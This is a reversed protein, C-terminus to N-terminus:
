ESPQNYKYDKDRTKFETVESWEQWGNENRAKVRIKYQKNFYLVIKLENKTLISLNGNTRINQDSRISIIPNDLAAHREFIQYHTEIHTGSIDINPQFIIFDNKILPDGDSTQIVLVTDESESPPITPEGAVPFWGQWLFNEFANGLDHVVDFWGWGLPDSVADFNDLTYSM